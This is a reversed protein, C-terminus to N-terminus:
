YFYKLKEIGDRDKKFEERDSINLEEATAEAEKFYKRRLSPIDGLYVSETEFDNDVSFANQKQIFTSYHWDGTNINFNYLQLFRAGNKAVFKIANILFEIDDESFIYHLNIRVWGPKLGCIGEQILNRYADSQENNIGLLAHGYPGACSCGARSQIGFLDNLLRTVFKPHLIRDKHAINFSVIAVRDSAKIDGMININKEGEIRKLFYETYEHEKHAINDAGVKEKLDMVLAAKITQLIPPTGAKERTEIDKSFDHGNYGVYDVTGGGAATPPLDSRYINKNFVLIGATGPGGLFKHPSFFIADFYSDDDRNMNIEIYPAVAAFDYFILTNHQHCIKAIEYVKTKVGTINSGASFSAIKVRDAYKKNSLKATLLQLDIMGSDDLPIVEVEAFAERWMLENTHHEYPGVFIIPREKEIQDAISCSPCKINSISGYIREKTVPPIYVGVMEQLQKLAGTAGSGIPVIRGDEGANVLDKIKKEAQHLLTTLYKGSYDDETHTNAYSRQINLIKQEIFSLGRGSATYDAYFINRKGFPSEFLLDSGILQSRLYEFSYEKKM